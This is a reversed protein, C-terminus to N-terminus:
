DEQTPDPYNDEMAHPYGIVEKIIRVMPRPTKEAPTGQDQDWGCFVEDDKLLKKIRELDELRLDGFGITQGNLSWWLNKYLYNYFTQGPRLNFRARAVDKYKPLIGPTYVDSM